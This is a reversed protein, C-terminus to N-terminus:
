RPGRSSTPPRPEVVILPQPKTATPPSPKTTNGPPPKTANATKKQDKSKRLRTHFLKKAYKNIQSEFTALWNAVRPRSSQQVQLEEGLAGEPWLLLSVLCALALACACRPAPAGRWGREGGRRDEFVGSMSSEAQFVEELCGM